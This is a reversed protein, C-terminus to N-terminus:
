LSILNLPQFSFTFLVMLGPLWSETRDMAVAKNETFDFGGSQNQSNEEAKLRRGLDRFGAM